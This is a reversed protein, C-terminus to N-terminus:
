VKTSRDKSPWHNFTNLVPNGSWAKWMRRQGRLFLPQSSPATQCPFAVESVGHSVDQCEASEKLLSDAWIDPSLETSTVCPVSRVCRVFLQVDYGNSHLCTCPLPDTCGNLEILPSHTDTSARVYVSVYIYLGLWDLLFLGFLWSSCKIKKQHGNVCPKIVPSNMNFSFHGCSSAFVHTM